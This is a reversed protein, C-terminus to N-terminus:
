DSRPEIVQRVNLASLFPDARGIEQGVVRGREARGEILRQEGVGLSPQQNVVQHFSGGAQWLKLGVQLRDGVARGLIVPVVVRLLVEAIEISQILVQAALRDPELALSAATISM